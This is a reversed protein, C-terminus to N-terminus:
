TPIAWVKQVTWPTRQDQIPLSLSFMFWSKYLWSDLHFYVATENYWQYWMTALNFLQTSQFNYLSNYIYIYMSNPGSFRCWRDHSMQVVQTWQVRYFHLEFTLAICHFLLHERVTKCIFTIYNLVDISEGVIRPRVDGAKIWMRCVNSLLSVLSGKDLLNITRIIQNQRPFVSHGTLGRKEHPLAEYPKWQSVGIGIYLKM